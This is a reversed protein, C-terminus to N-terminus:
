LKDPLFRLAYIFHLIVTCGKLALCHSTISIAASIFFTFCDNSQKPEHEAENDNSFALTVSTGLEIWYLLDIIHPLVELLCYNIEWNKTPEASQKHSKFNTNEGLCSNNNLHNLSDQLNWISSAFRWVCGSGVNLGRDFRPESMGGLAKGGPKLLWLLSLKLLCCTISNM